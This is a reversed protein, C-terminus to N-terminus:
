LKRAMRWRVWLARGGNIIQEGNKMTTVTGSGGANINQTAGSGMTNVTGKGGTNITQTSLRGNMTTVTGEGGDNINQTGGVMAGVTGEGSNIIQKGGTMMIARGNTTITQTDGDQLEPVDEDGYTNGAAFARSFVLSDLSDLAQALATQGLQTSSVPIALVALPTLAGILNASMLLAALRSKNNSNNKM